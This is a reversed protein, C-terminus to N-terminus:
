AIRLATLVTYGVSSGLILANTVTATAGYQGQLVIGTPGSVTYAVPGIPSTGQLTVFQASTLTAQLYQTFILTTANTVVVSNTTDYLQAYVYGYQGQSGYLSLNGRASAWLLYTGAVPLTISIVNTMGTSVLTTSTSTMSGTIVSSTVPAAWTGDERLLKTAGATAGPDPVAGGIHGAGSSTFPAMNLLNQLTVKKNTGTSAYTTDSVDVIEMIDSTSYTTLTALGSIPNSPM